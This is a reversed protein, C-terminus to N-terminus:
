KNNRYMSVTIAISIGLMIWAVVALWNIEM